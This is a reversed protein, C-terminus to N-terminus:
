KCGDVRDAPELAPSDAKLRDCILRRRHTVYTGGRGRGWFNGYRQRMGLCFFVSSMRLQM